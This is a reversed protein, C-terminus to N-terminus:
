YAVIANLFVKYISTGRDADGFHDRMGVLFRQLLIKTDMGWGAGTGIIFPILIHGSGTGLNQYKM